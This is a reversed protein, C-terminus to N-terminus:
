VIGGAAPAARGASVAEIAARVQDTLYQQNSLIANMMFPNAARVSGNRLHFGEHVYYGYNAAAGLYAGLEDIPPPPVAIARPNLRLMRSVANAYDNHVPTIRYESARLAGSIVPTNSKSETQMKATGKDIGLVVLRRLNQQLTPLRNFIVKIAIRPEAM